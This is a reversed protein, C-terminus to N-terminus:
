RRPRTIPVLKPPPPPIPPQPEPSDDLLGGSAETRVLLGMERCEREAATICAAMDLAKSEAAALFAARVAANRINGGSMEFMEGLRQPSVDEALQCTHPFVKSWLAARADADPKEFRVRFTLRRKFATDITDEFNTTLMTIGSFAEMRQLLFNVELNAYRDVSSKVETRKAFLSDAEDFLIIAQSREAEDFIKALNKETEGIWKSVVRSLDVQFLEMDLERAMVCACMTKGTGPPGAFLASVGQALGHRRGFGWDEYVVDAHRVYAIMEQLAYYVDVPVVLDEWKHSSTMRRAVSTLDHRLQRRCGESVDAATVVADDGRERALEVAARAGAGLRAPDLAYRRVMAVHDFDEDVAAGALSKQLFGARQSPTPFRVDAHVVPRAGMELLPEREEATFLAISDMEALFRAMPPPLQRVRVPPPEHEDAATEAKRPKEATHADWRAFCPLAGMLWSERRGEVLARQLEDPPVQGLEVILLPLKLQHAMHEALYRKGCGPPGAIEVVLPERAILAGRMRKLVRELTAQAILPQLGPRPEVRTMGLPLQEVGVLWEAVRQVLKVRTSVVPTLAAAEEVHVLAWRQLPGLRSFVVALEPLRRPPMELLEGITGLEMWPRGQERQLSRLVLRLFPDYEAAVLCVLADIALQPLHFLAALRPLRLDVAAAISQAEAEADNSLPEPQGGGGRVLREARRRLREVRSFLHAESSPYM